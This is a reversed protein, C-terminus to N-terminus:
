STGVIRRADLCIVRRHEYRTIAAVVRAKAVLTALPWLQVRYKLGGDGADRNAPVLANSPACPYEM